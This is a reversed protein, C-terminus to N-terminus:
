PKFEKMNGWDTGLKYDVPIHLVRRHITIPNNMSELITPVYKEELPSLFQQLASDHIQAKM